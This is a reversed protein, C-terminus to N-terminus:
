GSYMQKILNRLTYENGHSDTVSIAKSINPMTSLEELLETYAQCDGDFLLTEMHGMDPITGNESFFLEIAEDVSAAKCSYSNTKLSGGSDGSYESLDATEFAFGYIPGSADTDTSIGLRIVYSRGELSPTKRDIAQSQSIGGVLEDAIKKGECGTFIVSTIAIILFFKVMNKVPISTKQYSTSPKTAHQKAAQRYKQVIWLISPVLLSIAIDAWLIYAVAFERFWSFNYLLMTILVLLTIACTVWKYSKARELRLMSGAFEKAYFMFGSATAFVGIIWFAFIPYDLREVTGNAFSSAQMVNLASGQGNRVWGEGLIGVVYIYSLIISIVIWIFINLSNKWQHKRERHITMIMLEVSSLVILVGYSGAWLDGSAIVSIDMPPISFIDWQINTISFVVVFILPVIMWWFLFELLRGRKEIDRASGYGCILVFSIIIAWLNFSRLMYQRVILSFFLAVLSAKIIYRLSYIGELIRGFLGMSTHLTDIFGLPFSRSFGYILLAYLSFLVLGFFLAFIHYTGALRTTIFPVLIIGIPINELIGIRLVQRTSIKGNDLYM